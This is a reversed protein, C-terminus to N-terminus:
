NVCQLVERKSASVARRKANIEDRNTERYVRRKALKDERNDQYYKRGRAALKNSHDKNYKLHYVKACTKCAGSSNLNEPTREHGKPCYSTVHKASHDVQTVVMLHLPNVCSKSECTHHVQLGKPIEGNFMEYSVRHAKRSKGKFNFQGYGHQLCAQWEWCGCLSSIGVKSWFRNM